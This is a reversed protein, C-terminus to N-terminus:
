KQKRLVFDNKFCYVASSAFLILTKASQSSGIRPTFPPKIKTQELSTCDDERFFPHLKIAEKNPSKMMFQHLCIFDVLFCM